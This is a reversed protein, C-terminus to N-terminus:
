RVSRFRLEGRLRHACAAPPIAVSTVVMRLVEDPTRPGPLVRRRAFDATLL